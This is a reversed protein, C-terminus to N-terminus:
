WEERYSILANLAAAALPSGGRTGAITIYPIRNQKLLCDKAEAAGVFGVPMGVILAPQAIGKYALDLVEFLATPANGIAVISHNLQEGWLRMAAASRTIGWKQASEAVAQEDIACNVQGGRAEIEKQKIAVQLMRVDTFIPAGRSIAELGLRCGDPHFRIYEMIGPDGAAHVMRKVVAKEAPCYKNGQLYKEIIAMSEKEIEQPDWIIDM